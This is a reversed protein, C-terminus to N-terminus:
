NLAMIFQVKQSKETMLNQLFIKISDFKNIGNHFLSSHKSTKINYYFRNM